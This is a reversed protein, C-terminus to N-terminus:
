PRRLLEDLKGDMNKQTEKITGIDKKILQIDTKGERAPLCGETKVTEIAEMHATGQHEVESSLTAWAICISTLITAGTVLIWIWFKGNGSKAM